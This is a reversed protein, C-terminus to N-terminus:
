IIIHCHCRACVSFKLYLTDYSVAPHVMGACMALLSIEFHTSVVFTCCLLIMINQKFDSQFMEYESYSSLTDYCPVTIITTSSHIELSRHRRKPDERDYQVTSKRGVKGGVRSRMLGLHYRTHCYIMSCGVAFYRVCHWPGSRRTCQMCHMVHVLLEASCAICM